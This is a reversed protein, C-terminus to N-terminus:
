GVRAILVAAIGSVTSGSRRAAFGIRVAAPVALNALLLANIQLAQGTRIVRDIADRIAGQSSGDFLSAFPVTALADTRLNCWAALSSSGSELRGRLDIRVPAIADSATIAEDLAAREATELDGSGDRVVLMVGGPWADILLTMSEVPLTRSPLDLAVPVGTRAVREIGAAFQAQAEEPVIRVLARGIEAVVGFDRRATESAAIIQQRDNAILVRDEVRELVATLDPGCGQGSFHPACLADMIEVSTLVLRPRGRHLIYVPTRAARDQWYGFHRVLDSSTVIQRPAPAPDLM